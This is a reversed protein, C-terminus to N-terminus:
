NIKIDEKMKEKVKEIFEQLEEKLMGIWAGYFMTGIGAILCVSSLYLNIYCSPLALLIFILAISMAKDCRNLMNWATRLFRM